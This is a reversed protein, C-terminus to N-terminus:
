PSLGVGPVSAVAPAVGRHLLQERITQLRENLGSYFEMGGGRVRFSGRGLRSDSVLLMSAPAGGAALHPTILSLDEPHAELTAEAGRLEPLIEDLVRKVMARADHLNREVLSGTLEEAIVCALRVAFSELEARDAEREVRLCAAAQSIVEAARGLAQGSESREVERGREFARRQLAKLEQAGVASAPIPTSEGDVALAPVGADDGPALLTKPAPAHLRQRVAILGRPLVVRRPTM